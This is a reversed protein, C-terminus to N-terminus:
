EMRRLLLQLAEAAFWERNGERDLAGPARVEVVEPEGEDDALAVYSLGVAKTATAGGPGAVGTTSLCVGSRVSPDATRM